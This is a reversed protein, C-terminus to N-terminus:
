LGCFRMAQEPEECRSDQPCDDDQGCLVRCSGAVCTQPLAPNHCEGEEGVPSNCPEGAQLYVGGAVIEIPASMAKLQEGNVAEVLVYFNGEPKYSKPVPDWSDDEALVFGNPWTVKAADNAGRAAIWRTHEEMDEASWPVKDLVLVLVATGTPEWTIQLDRIDDYQAGALPEFVRLGTVAPLFSIKEPERAAHCQNDSGCAIDFASAAGDPLAPCAASGCQGSLPLCRNKPDCFERSGTCPKNDNCEVAVCKGSPGSCKEDEGCLSDDCDPDCLMLDEICAHGASCEQEDCRPVCRQGVCGMTEPCRSCPDGQAEPPASCASPLAVLLAAFAACAHRSFRMVSM